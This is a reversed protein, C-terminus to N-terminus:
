DWDRDWVDGYFNTDSVDLDIDLSHEIMDPFKCEIDDPIYGAEHAFGYYLVGDKQTIGEYRLIHIQKVPIKGENDKDSLSFSNCGAVFTENENITAVFKLADQLQPKLYEGNRDRQFYIEDFTIQISDDDVSEIDIMSAYYKKESDAGEYHTDNDRFEGYDLNNLANVIASDYPTKESLNDFLTVSVVATALVGITVILGLTFRDL